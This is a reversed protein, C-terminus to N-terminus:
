YPLELFQVATLLRGNGARLSEQGEFIRTEGFHDGVQSHCHVLLPKGMAASLRTDM